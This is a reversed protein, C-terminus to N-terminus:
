QVRGYLHTLHPSFWMVASQAAGQAQPRVRGIIFSAGDVVIQLKRSVFPDSSSMWVGGPWQGRVGVGGNPACGM